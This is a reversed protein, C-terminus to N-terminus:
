WAAAGQRSLPRQREDHKWPPFPSGVKHARITSFIIM